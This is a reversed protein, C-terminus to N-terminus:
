PHLLADLPSKISRMKMDNKCHRLGQVFYAQEVAFPKISFQEITYPLAQAGKTIRLIASLCSGDTHQVGPSLVQAQMRVDM